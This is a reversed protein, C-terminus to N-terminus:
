KWRQRQKTRSFTKQFLTVLDAHLTLGTVCRLKTLINEIKNETGRRLLGLVRTAMLSPMMQRINEDFSGWYSEFKQGPHFYNM